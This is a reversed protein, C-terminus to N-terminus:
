KQSGKSPSSCTLAPRVESHRLWDHQISHKLSDDLRGHTCMISLSACCVIHMITTGTLRVCSLEKTHASFDQQRSLM